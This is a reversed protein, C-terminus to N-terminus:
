AWALSKAPRVGPPASRNLSIVFDRDCIEARRESRIESSRSVPTSAGPEGSLYVAKLFSVHAAGYSRAELTEWGAFEPAEDSATEVVAISKEHVWGSEKLETLCPAALDKHYPPDLFAIDFAGGINPPIPGLSIASRRHVRTVGTLQLTEVNTRIAGRAASDTEVFLCFSAGRSMAELGLGGSGAFLDIVRAGALPPAWPAHAIINFLAERTRDATPRTSRGKPATIPRGKYKGSVIRM